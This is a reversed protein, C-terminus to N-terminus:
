LRMEEKGTKQETKLILIKYISLQFFTVQLRFLDNRRTLSEIQNQHNKIEIEINRIHGVM